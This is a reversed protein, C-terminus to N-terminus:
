PKIAIELYPWRPDDITIGVKCSPCPHLYDGDGWGEPEEAGAQQTQDTYCPLLCSSILMHKLVPVPLGERVNISFYRGGINGGVRPQSASLITRHRPMVM